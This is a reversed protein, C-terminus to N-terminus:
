FISQFIGQFFQLARQLVGGGRGGTAQVDGWGGEVLQTRKLMNSTDLNELAIIPDGFIYRVFQTPPIDIIYERWEAGFNEEAIEESVIWRIIPREDNEQNEVAWYVRPDGPIKVLVSGIRPMMQGSVPIRALTADSVFRVANFSPQHTFYTQADIFPRRVGDDSMFYVTSFTGRIYDGLGVPDILEELGTIPSLGTPDEGVVPPTPFCDATLEISESYTRTVNRSLSRFRVYITKEGETPDFTWVEDFTVIERGDEAIRYAELRVDPEFNKWDGEVFTGTDNINYSGIDSGEITVVVTESETCVAGDNISLNVNGVTPFNGGSGGGSSGPPNINICVGACQAHLAVPLAFAFLM